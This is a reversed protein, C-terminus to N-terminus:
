VLKHGQKGFDVKYGLKIKKGQVPMGVSSGYEDLYGPGVCNPVQM